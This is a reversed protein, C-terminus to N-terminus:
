SGCTTTAVPVVNMVLMLLVTLGAGGGLDSLGSDIGPVAARNM